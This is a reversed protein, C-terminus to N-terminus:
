KRMSPRSASLVVTGLRLALLFSFCRQLRADSDSGIHKNTSVSVFTPPPPTASAFEVKITCPCSKVPLLTQPTLSAELAMQSLTKQLLRCTERGQLGGGLIRPCRLLGQPPQLPQSHGSLPPSATSGGARPGEAEGTDPAPQRSPLAPGRSTSQPTGVSLAM